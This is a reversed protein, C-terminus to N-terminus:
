AAYFDAAAMRRAITVLSVVLPTRGSEFAGNWLEVFVQQLSEQAAAEDGLLRLEGSM